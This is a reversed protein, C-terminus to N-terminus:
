AARRVARLVRETDMEVFWRMDEVTRLGDRKFRAWVACEAGTLRELLSAEATVAVMDDDRSRPARWEGWVWALAELTSEFSERATDALAFGDAMLRKEYATTDDPDPRPNRGDTHYFVTM